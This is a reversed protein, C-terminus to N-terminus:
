HTTPAPRGLHYGQAYDVNEDILIALSEAEEVGEAITELGFAQALSVIAKVVHRNAANAALDRVFEIDIKLYRLPLRKLYTFGGFGTGFDDLALGCGIDALGHALAEGAAMDVMLATETVEFVLDAADAGTERLQREIFPLLDTKSISPASLNVAIVGTGRAARGAAQRIVWRDIEPIMGFKEAVPLFSAPLVVEGDRGIIRLLLEEGPRGDRLPIVPQSYVALRDEDIADRIRGIWSLAALERQVDAQQNKEDTIDRFAVVIGNNASGSALSAASYAVPVITGDKRTFAEDIVRVSRDTTRLRLLACEEAPVLTGDARQFHITEHMPQGLIERETWGLIQAAARNLYAIRGDADLALVGEVLNDMVVGRFEEAEVRETIDLVITGVGIIEGDIWVPYFSALWHRLQQPEASDAVSLDVNCVPEGRLAERYMPEVRRWLEPAIEAVTRGLHEAVSLGTVRALTEDIRIIRLDRDVLQFGVPAAAEIARLLALGESASRLRRRLSIELQKQDHIDDATGIWMWVQGCRDRVPLARFSHWRYETDLRRIRYQVVYPTAAQVAGDWAQAARDVDEPHVFDIWRGNYNAERPCGTYDVCRRNVYSTSGDPSATWVIHPISEVISNVMQGDHGACSLASLDAVLGGATSEHAQRDDSSHM